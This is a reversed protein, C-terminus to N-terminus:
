AAEGPPLERGQWTESEDRWPLDDNGLLSSLFLRLEVMQPDGTAAAEDLRELMQLFISQFAGESRFLELNSPLKGVAALLTQLERWTQLAYAKARLATAPAQERYEEAMDEFDVIKARYARIMQEVLEMPREDLGTPIQQEGRIIRRVVSADLGYKVAIENPKMGALHSAVIAANRVRRKDNPVRPGIAGVALARRELAAALEEPSKKANPMRAARKGKM